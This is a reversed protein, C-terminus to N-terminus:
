NLDQCTGNTLLKVGVQKASELFLNYDYNFDKPPVAKGNNYEYFKNCLDPWKQKIINKKEIKLLKNFTIEFEPDPGQDVINLNREINTLIASQRRLEVSLVYETHISAIYLQKLRNLDQIVGPYIKVYGIVTDNSNRKIRINGNNKINHDAIMDLGAGTVALLGGVISIAISGGMTVPTLALGLISLVGGVIICINSIKKINEPQSFWEKIEQWLNKFNIELTLIHNTNTLNIFLNNNNNNTLKGNIFYYTGTNRTIQFDFNYQNKPYITTM